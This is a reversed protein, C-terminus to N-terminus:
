WSQHFAMKIRADLQLEHSTNVFVGTAVASPFRVALSMETHSLECAITLAPCCLKFLICTVMSSKCIM